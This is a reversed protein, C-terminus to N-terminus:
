SRSDNDNSFEQEFEEFKDEIKDIFRECLDESSLDLVEMLTIEDLQKLREVVDLLTMAM